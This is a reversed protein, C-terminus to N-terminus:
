LEIAINVFNLAAIERRQVFNSLELCSYSWIPAQSDPATSKQVAETGSCRLYYGETVGQREYKGRKSLTLRRM